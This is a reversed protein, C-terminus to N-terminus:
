KRSLPWTFTMSRFLLSIAVSSCPENKPSIPTISLPGRVAVTTAACVKVMAPQNLMRKWKIAVHTVCWFNAVYHEFVGRSVPALRALVALALEKSHRFFPWWVLAFTLGVTAALSLFAEIKAGPRPRHLAWGLLHAFFALSHYLSMHKHNLALVYCASGLLRRGRCILATAALTLGLSICNYQFHGHDILVFGPNLLIVALAWLRSGPSERPYLANVAAAAAPFMFLLDSLLATLRMARKSSATEYGRSEGLAVAEPELWAVLKGHAWSQYASLPPYDLGWYGLDNAETQVYWEQLPLNLTVEMWHRQAEYDGFKPPSNAGSYGHLGVGVRVAVAAVCIAAVPAWGGALRRAKGGM